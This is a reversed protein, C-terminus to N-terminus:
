VSVKEDCKALDGSSARGSGAGVIKGWEKFRCLGHVGIVKMKKQQYKVSPSLSGAHTWSPLATVSILIAVVRVIKNANM